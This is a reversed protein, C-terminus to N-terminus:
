RRRLLARDFFGVVRREYAAPDAAIAATHGAGRVEWLQKPERAAAYYVRNLREQDQGALGRVLLVPRPAIAGVLDTLSPPPSRGALVSLALTQAVLPSVPKQPWGTGPDDWHEALSRIGAGESVVASLLRDRAAAELLLEGGVSLGLGGIRERAIGAARALYGAAADIDAAGGWGFANFDGESAGEGRRDFLLVGYGHRVLMRAQRLPGTRGPTVIVAAGNRSPVYWGVLRLGDATTFAVDRYPRGLDAAAVTARARHTAVIAFASPFLVLLAASAAAVAVAARRAYRRLPREDRRRSTWLLRLGLVILVAGAAGALMVSFDDGTPHDILAHRLGDAVGATAALVGCAIAIAARIGARLRPYALALLAAAAVPVLAAAVHDGAGTGPEPHLAADDVAAFAALAVTARFIRAEARGAARDDRPRRTPGPSRM